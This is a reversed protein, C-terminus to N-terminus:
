GFCGEPPFAQWRSAHYSQRQLPVGNSDRRPEGACGEVRDVEPAPLSDRRDKLPRDPAAARLTEQLLAAEAATQRPPPPPETEPGLVLSRSALVAFLLCCVALLWKWGSRM